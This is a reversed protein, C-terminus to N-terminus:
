NKALHHLRRKDQSIVVPRFGLTESFIVVVAVVLLVGERIIPSPVVIAGFIVVEVIFGFLLVGGVVTIELVIVVGIVFGVVRCRNEPLDADVTTKDVRVPFVAFLASVGVVVVFIVRGFVVPVLEIIRFVFRIVVGGRDVDGDEVLQFAADLLLVPDVFASLGIFVTIRIWLIVM